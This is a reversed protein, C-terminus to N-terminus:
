DPVVQMSTGRQPDWHQREGCKPCEVWGWGSPTGARFLGVVQKVVSCSDECSGLPFMAEVDNFGLFFVVAHLQFVQRVVEIEEAM